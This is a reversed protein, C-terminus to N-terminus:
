FVNDIDAEEGQGHKPGSVNYDEAGWSMTIVAISEISGTNGKKFFHQINSNNTLSTLLLPPSNLPARKQKGNKVM